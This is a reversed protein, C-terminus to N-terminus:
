KAERKLPPEGMMPFIVLQSGLAVFYGIAVNAGSEVLSASRSQTM